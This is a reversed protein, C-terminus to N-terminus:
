GKRHSNGTPLPVSPKDAGVEPEHALDEWLTPERHGIDRLHFVDNYSVLRWRVAQGNRTRQEWLTISTNHPSLEVPPVTLTNIRMFYLFSADIVGGHTVLVITKGAHEATIRNLATAIRLMFQPWNEGGPSMERFPNSRFDPIGYTAQLEDLTIGDATGPRLEQIDDDWIIPRGLAPALIEATQRARPLTSAIVVDPQIEHTAALRDRLREAQAFGLPTLGRDGKMGGIIPEVNAWAEGHRIMYLKTSSGVDM